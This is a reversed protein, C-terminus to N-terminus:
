AKPLLRRADVWGSWGNVARVQAWDGIRQVVLLDLGPALPTMPRSGDPQDWSQLGDPPALHTPAWAAPLPATLPAGVGPRAAGATAAGMVAVDPLQAIDARIGRIYDLQRDLDAQTTGTRTALMALSLQASQLRGALREGEPGKRRGLEKRAARRSRIGGLTKVDEPSLADGGVHGAVAREFWRQERTGALRVMLVLFILFPLGKIATYILWNVIGPDDGLLFGLFPSNWIFHAFVALAFGGIAFLLRRQRPQDLRTLYYAFGMGAIGTFLVHTYPGSAIVRIFFGQLVAGFEGGAGANAVFRIFYHLNEVIAFGLGILAGYVFGDFVDDIEERAILWITVIGLFKLSEEVAPGILAPGWEAAFQPGFVKQLIELWATNTPAALAISVVGGWLLAAALLSIPEREYLDLFYVVAFVPVAYLALLAISLLWASPAVQLLELERGLWIIGTIALVVALFWFAPQRTQVVSTQNGWDPIQLTTTPYAPPMAAASAQAPAGANPPPTAAPQTTM